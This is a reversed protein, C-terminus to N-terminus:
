CVPILLELNMQFCSFYNVNCVKARENKEKALQRRKIAKEKRQDIQAETLPKGKLATPLEIHKEEGGGKLRRQIYIYLIYYTSHTNYLLYFTHQTVLLLCLCFRDLQLRQRIRRLNEDNMNRSIELNLLRQGSVNRMQLIMM